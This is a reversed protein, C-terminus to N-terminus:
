QAVEAVVPEGPLVANLILSSLEGSASEIKTRADAASQEIEQRASQIRQQASARVEALAAEREENWRKLKQERTQFIELKANRLKEEYASTEAEATAMAGRAQEVAGLTRARREALVRDLPRRVLVGYVAVLLIFLVMTPVSGLVLEGLQHLIVDM